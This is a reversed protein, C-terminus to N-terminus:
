VGKGKSPKSNKKRLAELRGKLADKMNQQEAKIDGVSRATSYGRISRVHFGFRWAGQARASDIAHERPRSNLVRIWMNEIQETTTGQGAMAAKFREAAFDSVYKVIFDKNSFIAPRIHPRPPMRRTGEELFGSYYMYAGFEPQVSAMGTCFNSIFLGLRANIADGGKIGVTALISSVIKKQNITGSTGAVGPM